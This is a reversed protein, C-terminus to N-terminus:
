YAVQAGKKKVETLGRSAFGTGEIKIRIIDKEKLRVPPDCFPDLMDKKIIREVCAMTVVQGSPRLVACPVTNTLGKKSLPCIYREKVSLTELHNRGGGSGSAAGEEEETAPTFVVPFLQKLKLPEGSMPCRVVTDPKDVREQASPANQPAWFSMDTAHKSWDDNVVHGRVVSKVGGRVGATPEAAAGGGVLGQEAREFRAVERESEAQQEREAGAAKGAEHATWAELQRENDKRKQLIYEYISERDFLFGQPTIVPDRCPHLSLCCMDFDRLSDSGIKLDGGGYACNAHKYFASSAYGKKAAEREYHSFFARDNNNKSHRGM